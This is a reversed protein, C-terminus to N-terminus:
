PGLHFIGVQEWGGQVSVEKPVRGLQSLVGLVLTQERHTRMLTCVYHARVTHIALRSTPGNATGWERHPSLSLPIQHKSLTCPNLAFSSNSGPIWRWLVCARGRHFVGESWGGGTVRRARGDLGGRERSGERRREEWEKTWGETWLEVRSAATRWREQKREGWGEEVKGVM